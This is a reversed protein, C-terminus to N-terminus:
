GIIDYGRQPVASCMAAIVFRQVIRTLREVHKAHAVVTEDAFRTQLAIRERLGRAALLREMAIGSAEIRERTYAIWEEQAMALADAATAIAQGQVRMAGALAEARDLPDLATLSPAPSM